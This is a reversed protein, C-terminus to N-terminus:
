RKKQVMGIVKMSVPRPMLEQFFLGIKNFAGPVILRKGKLVGKFAIEAVSAADTKPLKIGGKATLGAREQFKTPTIGPCLTSVAINSDHIESSVAASFHLVFAKTAYYVAMFPGPQFAATSAVNLIRGSGRELMDRMFLKTLIVVASINLEIMNIETELKNKSFEGKLGFGANNVLIEVRVNEEKLLYYIRHAESQISLDAPIIKVECGYQEVIEKKRQVLMEQNRANLVLDFGNRAFVKALEYGIGTTAGTILVNASKTSIDKMDEFRNM